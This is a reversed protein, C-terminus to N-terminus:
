CASSRRGDRRKFRSITILESVIIEMDQMAQAAFITEINASCEAPIIADKWNEALFDRLEDLSSAHITFTFAGAEKLSFLGLSQAQALAHDAQEYEAFDDSEQLNGAPYRAEGGVVEILPPQQSPHIDILIGAPRILRAIQELAHVM